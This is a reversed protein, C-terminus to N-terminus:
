AHLKVRDGALPSNPNRWRYRSEDEDFDIIENEVMLELMKILMDNMDNKTWFIHKVKNYSHFTPDYSVLGLCCALFYQAIDPDEWDNLLTKLALTTTMDYIPPPVAHDNPLNDSFSLRTAFLPAGCPIM